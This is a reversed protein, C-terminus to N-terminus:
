KKNNLAEKANIKKDGMFAIIFAEPFKALV